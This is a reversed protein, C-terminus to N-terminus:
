FETPAAGQNVPAIIEERIGKDPLIHLKINPNLVEANKIKKVKGLTLWGFASNGLFLDASNEEFVYLFISSVILFVGLIYLPYIPSVARSIQLKTIDAVEFYSTIVLLFGLAILIVPHKQKELFQFM